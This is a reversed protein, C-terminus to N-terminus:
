RVILIPIIILLLLLEIIVIEMYYYSNETLDVTENNLNKLYIIPIIYLCLMFVLIMKYFGNNRKAKRNEM